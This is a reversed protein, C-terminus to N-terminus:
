SDELIKANKNTLGKEYKCYWQYKDKLDQTEKLDVIPRINDKSVYQNVTKIM